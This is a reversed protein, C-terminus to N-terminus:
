GLREVVVQVEGIGTSWLHAQLRIVRFGILPKWRNGIGNRLKIEDISITEDRSGDSLEKETVFHLSCKTENKKMAMEVEVFVL